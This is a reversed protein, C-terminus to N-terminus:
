PLLRERIMRGPTVVQIGFELAAPLFDAVNHTVIADAQGNMATSLVHEDNPDRLQPRWQYYHSVRVARAAMTDLVTSLQSLPLGHVRMQEPRSLVDEYELLLAPSLLLDFHGRDFADVM